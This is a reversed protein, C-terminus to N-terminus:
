YNQSERLNCTSATEMLARIRDQIGTLARLQKLATRCSDRSAVCDAIRSQSTQFAFGPVHM